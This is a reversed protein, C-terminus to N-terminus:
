RMGAETAQVGTHHPPPALCLWRRSRRWARAKLTASVYAYVPSRTTNDFRKVERSAKMYIGRCRSVDTCVSQSQSMKCVSRRHMTLWALSAVQTLGRLTCWEESADPGAGALM